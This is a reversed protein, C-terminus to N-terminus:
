SDDYKYFDDGLRRVTRSKKANYIQIDNDNMCSLAADADAFLDYDDKATIAGYKALSSIIRKKSQEVSVNKSYKRALKIEHNSPRDIYKVSRLLEWFACMKCRSKNSDSGRDVLRFVHRTLYEDIMPLNDFLDYCRKATGANEKFPLLEFTKSMKRHVEFEINYVKTPVPTFKKALKAILDYNPEEEDESTEFALVEKILLKDSETLDDMYELAFKLRAVDIYKCSKEKFALDYCYFDYRSIMGQFLWYKFFWPKYGMQIVESVKDYVRLMCKQRNGISIYGFDPSSKDKKDKFRYLYSVLKGDVGRSKGLTSVTMYELNDAAFFKEPNQFYNTHWCPDFRNEKVELIQLLFTDCLCTVVSLARDFAANLGVEWILKSRLQVNIEPTVSSVGDYTPVSPAIFIDFLDPCSLHFTCFQDFRGPVVLLTEDVTLAKFPLPETVDSFRSLFERFAIVCAEDSDRTFDNQLKVSFYFTDINHLFKHQKKYFWFNKDM